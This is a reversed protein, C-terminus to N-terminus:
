ALLSNRLFPSFYCSVRPDAVIASKARQLLDGLAHSLPRPPPFSDVNLNRESRASAELTKLLPVIVEIRCRSSPESRAGRVLHWVQRMVQPTPVANVSVDFNVM